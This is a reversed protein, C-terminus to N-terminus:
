LIQISTKGLLPPSIGSRCQRRWWQRGEGGWRRVSVGGAHWCELESMIIENVTLAVINKNAAISLVHTTQYPFTTKMCEDRTNKGSGGGGQWRGGTM